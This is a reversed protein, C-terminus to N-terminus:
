KKLSVSVGNRLTNHVEAIRDVHEILADIEQQSSNDSRIDVEYVVNSAPEGEGAFEGYVTVQVSNIDIQRRGAERYVDNCFCTALSLFLLEGGNVSSGSGVAKGPISIEKKNNDTAVTIDNKQDANKITASIIM